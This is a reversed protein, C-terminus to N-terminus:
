RIVAVRLVRDKFIATGGSTSYRLQFSHTGATVPMVIWGARVRSTVGDSAGVGPTSIRLDFDNAESRHIM